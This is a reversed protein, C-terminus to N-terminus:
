TGLERYAKVAYGTVQTSSGVEGTFAANILCKSLVSGASLRRGPNDHQKHDQGEGLQQSGPLTAESKSEEQRKKRYDGEGLVGSGDQSDVRAELIM